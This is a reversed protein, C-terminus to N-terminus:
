VCIWIFLSRCAHRLIWVRGRGGYGGGGGGRYDDSGYSGSMPEPRALTQSRELLPACPPVSHGRHPRPPVHILTLLVGCNSSPIFRCVTTPQKSATGAPNPKPPVKKM